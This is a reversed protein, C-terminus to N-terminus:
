FILNTEHNLKLLPHWSSTPFTFMGPSRLARSSPQFCSRTQLRRSQHWFIQPAAHGPSVVMGQRGLSPTTEVERTCASGLHLWRAETHHSFHWFNSQNQEALLLHKGAFAFRPEQKPTPPQLAPPSSGRRERILCLWPGHSALGGRVALILGLSVPM